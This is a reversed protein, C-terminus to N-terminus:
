HLDQVLLSRGMTFVAGQYLNHTGEIPHLPIPGTSHNILQLYQENSIILGKINESKYLTEPPFSEILKDTNFVGKVGRMDYFKSLSADIQVKSM